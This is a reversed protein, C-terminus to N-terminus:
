HFAPAPFGRTNSRPRAPLLPLHLLSSCHHRLKLPKSAGTRQWGRLLGERQDWERGVNASAGTCLQDRQLAPLYMSTQVQSASDHANTACCAAGLPVMCPAHKRPCFLLLCMNEGQDRVEPCSERYRGCVAPGERSSISSGTFFLVLYCSHTHTAWALRLTPCLVPEHLPSLFGVVQPPGTALRAVCAPNGRM